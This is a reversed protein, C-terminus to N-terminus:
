INFSIKEPFTKKWFSSIYESTYLYTFIYKLKRKIFIKESNHLRICQYMSVWKKGNKYKLIMWESRM